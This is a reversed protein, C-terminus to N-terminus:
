FFSLSSRKLEHSMLHTGDSEESFGEGKKREIGGERENEVSM